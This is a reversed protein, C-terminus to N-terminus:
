QPLDKYVKNLDLPKPQTKKDYEAIRKELALIDEDTVKTDLAWKVLLNLKNMLM